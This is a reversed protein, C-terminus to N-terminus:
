TINLITYVYYLIIYHIYVCVYVHDNKCPVEAKWLRMGKHQSFIVALAKHVNKVYITIANRVWISLPNTLQSTKNTWPFPRTNLSKMNLCKKWNQKLNWLYKQFGLLREQNAKPRAITSAQYQCSKPWQLPHTQWSRKPGLLKMGSLLM